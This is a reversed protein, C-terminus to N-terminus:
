LVRYWLAKLYASEPCQPSVPHDPAAGSRELLQLRRGAHRAAAAVIKDHESEPLLGSCSCTLFLGGPALLRLALKNLDLYKRTGEGYDDRTAILKPPDLVLAEWRRENAEMQRMYVFADAHVWKVRVQNLNANHRATEIAREDLDVGTADRANGAAMAALAFGGTYCCVDLLSRGAVLGALRRRNDRQDCFFGTKHGEDFRVGFRVGNEAIKVSRVLEGAGRTEAITFGELRAAATDVRVVDRSTGCLEHLRPLLTDLQRFPGYAFVEVALVDDYRDVVLGSLGDGEAHLVRYANTVADLRLVDRRLSVAQRLLEDLFVSDVAREGHLLMRLTIRSRPNYFGSGFVEGRRDYVRVVDGPRADGSAGDVMRRYIFPHFSASRLLVWPRPWSASEPPPTFRRKPRARAPGKRLSDTM